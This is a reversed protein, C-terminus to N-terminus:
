VFKIKNLHVRLEIFLNKSYDNIFITNVDKEYNFYKKKDNSYVAEYYTNLELEMNKLNEFVNKMMSKHPILVKVIDTDDIKDFRMLYLLFVTFDFGRVFTNPVYFLDYFNVYMYEPLFDNHQKQLQPECKLKKYLYSIGLDGIYVDIGKKSRRYLLNEPKNDIGMMEYKNLTKYVKYIKPLLGLIENGKLKSVDGDMLELIIIGYKRRLCYWFDYFKPTVRKKGQSYLIELYTYNFVENQFVPLNNKVNQIKAVYKCSIGNENKKECIISVAGYTGGGLIKFNKTDFKFNRSGCSKQIRELDKRLTDM